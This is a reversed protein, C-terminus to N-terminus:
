ECRWVEDLPNFIAVDSDLMLIDAGAAFLRAAAFLKAILVRTFVGQRAKLGAPPWCCDISSLACISKRPAVLLSSTFGVSVLRADLSTASSLGKDNTPILTLSPHAAVYATVESSDALSLRHSASTVACAFGHLWMQAFLFSM